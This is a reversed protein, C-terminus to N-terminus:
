PLPRFPCHPWVPQQVTLRHCEVRVPEVHQQHLERETCDRTCECCLSKESLREQMRTAIRTFMNGLAANIRRKLAARGGLRSNIHNNRHHPQPPSAAAPGSGGCHSMDDYDKRDGPRSNGPANPNVTVSGWDGGEGEVAGRARSGRGEGGVDIWKKGTVTRSYGGTGVGCVCVFRGGGGGGGGGGCVCVFRGGGGGCVSVCVGRM